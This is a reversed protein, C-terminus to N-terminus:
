DVFLRFVKLVIFARALSFLGGAFPAELGKSLGVLFHTDIELEHEGLNLVDDELSKDTYLGM